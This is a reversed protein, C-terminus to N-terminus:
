LFALQQLQVELLGEEVAPESEREGRLVWEVLFVSLFDQFSGEKQSAVLSLSIDKHVEKIKSQGEVGLIDFIVGGVLVMDSSLKEIIVEYFFGEGYMM